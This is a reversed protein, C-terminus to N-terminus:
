PGEIWSWCVLRWDHGRVAVAGAYGPAPQLALLRWRPAEAADPRTALLRAPEEPAMTVDFNHLGLSIGVGQGKIYAEKCAWGHFFARVRAEEPLCDLQAVEAPSFFRRALREHDVDERVREVDVGIARGLTVAVLALDASHSLNFSVTEEVDGLLFPKGHENASFRLGAPAVDLYRGLIVRLLGRGVVFRAQDRQRYFGAARKREGATLVSELAAVAGAPQDLLIRWVHVADASLTWEAPPGPWEASM